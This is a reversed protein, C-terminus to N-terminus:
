FIWRFLATFMVMTTMGLYLIIFIFPLWKEIDSFSIKKKSSEEDKPYLIEERHYIKVSDKMDPDNEMEWLVDFRVKLLKKYSLIANRWVVCISVGALSIIATAALLMLIPINSDIIFLASGTLLLSNITTYLNAINQRRDTIRATDEVLMQYEAFKDFAAM